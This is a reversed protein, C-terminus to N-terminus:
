NHTRVARGANHLHSGLNILPIGLLQAAECVPRVCVRVCAFGMLIHM